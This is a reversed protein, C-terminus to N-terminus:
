EDKFEVEAMGRVFSLLHQCHECMVAYGCCKVGQGWDNRQTLDIDYIDEDFKDEKCVPCELKIKETEENCRTWFVLYARKSM